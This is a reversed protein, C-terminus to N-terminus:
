TVPEVDRGCYRCVRARALIREACFPCEREIRGAEVVAATGERRGGLREESAVIQTQVQRRFELPRAILAFPERSGGTGVITVTGYGLVRGLLTQDVGITEIKSLLTEQSDREILGVKTVVRKDTVAFESTLYEVLPKIAFIAAALLGIPPLIWRGEPWGDVLVLVLFALGAALLLLVPWAFILWHRHARYTVQEGPLLHEDIYGM